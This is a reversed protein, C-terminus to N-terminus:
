EQSFLIIPAGTKQPHDRFYQILWAKTAKKGRTDQSLVMARYVELAIPSVHYTIGDEDLWGPINPIHPYLSRSM